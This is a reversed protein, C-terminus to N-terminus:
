FPWIVGLLRALWGPRQQDSLDGEGTFEIEADALRSSSVINSDDIDIPRVVGSVYLYQEENNVLIARQGEVFLLGNSLRERVVVQVTAELRETRGTEGRGDFSSETTAGVLSTPDVGVNADRLQSMAGLFSRIQANMETERTLATTAGRQATAFEEVRVTLLDGSRFARQDTYLYNVNAGSSWLSGASRGDDSESLDVPFDYERLRPGEEEEQGRQRGGCAGVILALGLCLLWRMQPSGMM